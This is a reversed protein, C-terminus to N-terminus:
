ETTPNPSRSMTFIINEPIDIVLPIFVKSILEESKARANSVLGVWTKLETKSSETSAIDFFIENPSYKRNQDLKLPFEIGTNAEFSFCYEILYSFISPDLLPEQFLHSQLRDCSEFHVVQVGVQLRWTKSRSKLTARFVTVISNLFDIWVGLYSFIAFQM